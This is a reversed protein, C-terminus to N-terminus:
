LLGKKVAVLEIRRWRPLVSDPGITNRGVLIEVTKM